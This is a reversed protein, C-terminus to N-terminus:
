LKWSEMACSQAEIFHLLNRRACRRAVCSAVGVGHYVGARAAILDVTAREYGLEGFVRRAGTLIQGRKAAVADLRAPHTM